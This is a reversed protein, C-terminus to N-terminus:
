VEDFVLVLAASAILSKTVASALLPNLMVLLPPLPVSADKVIVEGSAPVENETEVDLASASLPAEIPSTINVALLPITTHSPEM